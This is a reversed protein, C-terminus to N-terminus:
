RRRSTPGTAVFSRVERRAVFQGHPDEWIQLLVEELSQSVLYGRSASGVGRVASRSSREEAGIKHRLWSLGADAAIAAVGVALAKSVPGLKAPWARGAPVPRHEQRTALQEGSTLPAGCSGCFRNRPPNEQRCRPCPVQRETMNTEEEELREAPRKIGVRISVRTPAATLARLVKHLRRAM